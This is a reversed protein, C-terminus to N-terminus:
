GCRRGKRCIRNGSRAVWMGAPDYRDSMSYYRSPWTTITRSPYDVIADFRKMLGIGISGANPSTYFFGGTDLSARTIVNPITKGFVGVNTRFVDAFIPGGIGFGTLANPVGRVHYFGNNAAFRHFLTLSSRDGTDLMVTGALGDITAPLYILTNRVIFPAPHAGAPHPLATRSLTLVDRDMDFGVRYSRLVDYGIIGDINTFGINKVIESMDVVTVPLHSFTEGAVRVRDLTALSANVQRKGAGGIPGFPKMALHLRKAVSPMLTTGSSGTDVIMRFPGIGNLNAQVVIRNDVLTFPVSAAYAPQVALAALLAANM